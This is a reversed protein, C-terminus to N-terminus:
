LDLLVFGVLFQPHVTGAGSTAVYVFGGIVFCDIVEWRLENSMFSWFMQGHFHMEHSPAPEVM